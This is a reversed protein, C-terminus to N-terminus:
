KSIKGKLRGLFEGAGIELKMNLTKGIKGEWRRVTHYLDHDVTLAIPLM